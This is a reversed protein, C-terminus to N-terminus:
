KAPIALSQPNHNTTPFFRGRFLRELLSAKRLRPDDISVTHKKGRRTQLILQDSSRVESVVWYKDVEYHYAEGNTSAVVNKARPGPSTTYKERTYIVKDGVHYRSQM